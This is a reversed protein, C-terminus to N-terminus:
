FHWGNARWFRRANDSLRAEKVKLFLKYAREVKNADLLKNNLKSYIVRGPCLGKCLCEETVLVANDLQGVNCLGSIVYEYVEADSSYGSEQMEDWLTLLMGSKGFRSLRELLLKYTKLSIKCGLIRTKKYIMLAGHPPGYSCLPEIISTITGMNPVFGREIMEDFLELADAVKRFKLFALIMKKYTDITPACSNGLMHEYFKMCNDLDGISIFNSIIANYVNVDPECGQEVMEDFVLIADDTHGARGLGEILHSFTLCSPSLKDEIMAKLWRDIEGVRGLKSWGGIILNYTTDNFPVKGKISNFFSTATGVHSRHCLCQLLVNLSETDCEFGNEELKGFLEIAKGVRNARLFSDMVILLTESNPNIGRTQMIQFIEMMFSFYKRRGLAKLILHYIHIANPINPQKLAWNFLSVMLDGNLNARNLVNALIGVTLDVDLNTLAIQIANKGKIKQLLVGQLKEESSLLGDFARKDTGKEKEFLSHQPTKPRIPLLESLESLVYREERNYQKNNHKESLEDMRIDLPMDLTSFAFSIALNPRSLGYRTGFLSLTRQCQFAM